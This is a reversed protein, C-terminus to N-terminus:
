GREEHGHAPGVEEEDEGPRQPDPQFQARITAKRSTTPIARTTSNSTNVADSALPIWEARRGEFEARKSEHLIVLVRSNTAKPRSIDHRSPLNHGLCPRCSNVLLKSNVPLSILMSIAATVVSGLRHLLPQPESLSQVGEIPDVV